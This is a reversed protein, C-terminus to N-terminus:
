HDNALRFLEAKLRRKYVGVANAPSVLVAGRNIDGAPRAECVNQCVSMLRVGCRKISAAGCVIRATGIIQRCAPRLIGGVAWQLLDRSGTPTIPFASRCEKSKMKLRKRIFSKLVPLISTTFSLWLQKAISRDLQTRLLLCSLNIYM